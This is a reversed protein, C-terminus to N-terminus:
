QVELDFALIKSISDTFAFRGEKTVIAVVLEEQGDNDYDAVVFDSIRGAFEQTNWKPVLGLGNWEMSQIKGKKFARFDKLMSKALEDHSAVLVEPRGDRNMDTTRIRLPYFQRNPEGPEVKPLNFFLMNGGTRDPDEYIMQSAGSYIRVRDWDSYAAILSQGTHTIDDYTVGLLNARGGKLLQSGATIRDGEWTMERIAGRFISEDATRQRQGLLVTGRDTTNALTLRVKHCGDARVVETNEVRLHERLTQEVCIQPVPLPSAQLPLSGAVLLLFWPRFPLIRTPFLAGPQM